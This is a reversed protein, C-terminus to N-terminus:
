SGFLRLDSLAAMRRFDKDQSYLFVHHEIATLAILADVLHPSYGKRALQYSFRGAQRWARRPLELVPLHSFYDELFRIEKESRAGRFLEAEVIEITVLRDEGLLQDVQKTLLPDQSRFYEVWVSTDVLVRNDFM